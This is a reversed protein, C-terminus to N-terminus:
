VSSRAQRRRTRPSGSAPPGKGACDPDASQLWPRPKQWRSQEAQRFRRIQRRKIPLGARALERQLLNLTWHCTPPVAESAPTPPRGRAKAIVRSRQAETSPPPRGSRPADAVGDLGATDFRESWPRVAKDTLGLQRAMAPVTAGHVALQSIRARRVLRVPATEARVLRELKIREATTLERVRLAM